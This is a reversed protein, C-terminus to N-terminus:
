KSRKVRIRRNVDDKSLYFAGLAGREVYIVDGDKVRFAGSDTQKWVHGNDLTLVLRKRADKKVSSVNAYIKDETNERLRKYEMGFDDTPSFAEQKSSGAAPAPAVPRSATGGKAAPLPAPVNMLDDLGTYRNLENVVGDYCVLRKLSNQVRGCEELAESISKAQSFPAVMVVALLAFYKKMM